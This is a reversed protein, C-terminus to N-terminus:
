KLTETVTLIALIPPLSDIVVKNNIATNIDLPKNRYVRGKYTFFWRDHKYYALNMTQCPKYPNNSPPKQM